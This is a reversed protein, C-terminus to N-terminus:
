GELLYMMFFSVRATSTDAAITAPVDKACDPVPPEPAPLAPPLPADPM